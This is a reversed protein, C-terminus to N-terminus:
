KIFWKDHIKYSQEVADNNDYYGLDCYKHISGNTIITNLDKKLDQNEKQLKILHIKFHNLLDGLNVNSNSITSIFDDEVNNLLLVPDVPIALHYNKRILDEALDFPNVPLRM